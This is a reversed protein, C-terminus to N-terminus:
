ERGALEPAHSPLTFTFRAGDGLQSEVKVRGGHLAVLSKVLALGIGLGGYDLHTKESVQQFPEFIREHDAPAIGIGQDTVICTVAGEGPILEIRVRGRDHSFKLANDLLEDLIQHLRERDAWVPTPEGEPCLLELELEKASGQKRWRPLREEIVSLLDLEACRLRITGSQLKAIELISEVIGLLKRGSEEITAAGDAGLPDDAALLEERLLESYGLIATLPTKLEHSMRSIFGLKVENAARLHSVLQANRVLSAVHRAVLEFLRRANPDMPHRSILGLVGKDGGLDLPFGEFRHPTVGTGPLEARLATNKLAVDAAPVGQIFPIRQEEPPRESSDTQLSSDAPSREQTPDPERKSLVSAVLHLCGSQSCREAWPCHDCRDPPGPLWMRVEDVEARTALQEAAERTVAEAGELSSLRVQLDNIWASRMLEHTYAELLERYREQRRHLRVSLDATSDQGQDGPDRRVLDMVLRDTPPLDPLQALPFFQAEEVEGGPRPEDGPGNVRYWTTITPQGTADTEALADIVDAPEVKLGAERWVARQASARADDRWEVLKAPISYSGPHRDADARRRVLLVEPGQEGDRLLVGASWLRPSLDHREGCEVCLLGLGAGRAAEDARPLPAGCSSCYRPWM